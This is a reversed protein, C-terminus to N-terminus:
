EEQISVTYYAPKHGIEKRDSVKHTQIPTDDYKKKPKQVWNWSQIESNEKAKELANRLKQSISQLDGSVEEVERGPVPRSFLNIRLTPGSRKKVNKVGELENLNQILSRM